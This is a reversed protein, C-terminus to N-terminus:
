DPEATCTKDITERVQDMTENMRLEDTLRCTDALVVVIPSICDGKFVPCQCSASCYVAM